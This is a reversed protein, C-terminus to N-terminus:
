AKEMVDISRRLHPHKIGRFPSYHARDRSRFDIDLKHDLDQMKLAHLKKSSNVTPDRFLRIRAEIKALKAEELAKLEAKSPPKPKSEKKGKPPM